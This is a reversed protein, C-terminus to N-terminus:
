MELMKKQRKKVIKSLYLSGVFLLVSILLQRSDLGLQSPDFAEINEISAGFSVFTMMGPIIGVLTALFYSRWKVRLIGCGYNTLDFPLFILRMILVSIFGNQNIKKKWNAMFGMENENILDKGLFRGLGYAFNASANEGIWTYLSGWWFGFLAGALATLLSAPFLILPRLAYAVMFIIPGSSTTTLYSYLQKTLDLSTVNNVEKYENFYYLLAGWFILATVKPFHKKIVHKIDEKANKATDALYADSVKKILRGLVPYPYIVKNLKYLSLKNQIAVTFTNLLEGANKGMIHAGLIRGSLKKAVIIITGTPAEDTKARDAAEFPLAIKTVEKPGYIKTAADYTLGVGAVEETLYTVHPIPKQNDAGAFPLLIKKVVHRGQDDAVHTFKARTAVDGVAFIHKQNTRYHKDVKIGHDDFHINAAELNLGKKNPVRGIAMLIYDYPMKVVTKGHAETCNILAEGNECSTITGQTQIKIGKKRLSEEALKSIDLEEFPMIHMSTTIITVDSGLNNFAEAMECGIAGGGLIVLKKPIEKLHFLNENTLTKEEELGPIDLMRPSSGTAIVFKRATYKKKGVEVTHKDFFQAKGIVVKVGLKELIEPSEESRIHEIKSRVKGLISNRYEELEKTDGGRKKAIAYERAHHILNKSPICGSNTCEGGMLYKEILLVKKGLKALGISSTLGGSGAGIVIADYDYKM